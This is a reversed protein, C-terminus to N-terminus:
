EQIALSFPVVVLFVLLMTILFSVQIKVFNLMQTGVGWIHIAGGYNEEFLMNGFINFCNNVIYIASGKNNHFISNGISVCEAMGFLGAVQVLDAMGGGENYTFNCHNITFVVQSNITSFSLLASSFGTNNAFNCHIVSVDGSMGASLRVTQGASRQFTCNRIAINSSRSFLIVPNTRTGCGDWTIGEIVCNHCFSFHLGGDNNCKVTPNTSGIISINELHELYTYSHLIVDTTVHITVNSTLNNLADEFSHFFNNENACDQDRTCMTDTVTAVTDNNATVVNRIMIVKDVASALKVLSFFLLLTTLLM